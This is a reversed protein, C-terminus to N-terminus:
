YFWLPTGDNSYAITAYIDGTVFVNGSSDVAIDNAFGSSFRNSWLEVGVAARTLPLVAGCGALLLATAFLLNRPALKM